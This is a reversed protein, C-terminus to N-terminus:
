RNSSRPGAAIALLFRLDDRLATRNQGLRGRRLRQHRANSRAGRVACIMTNSTNAAVTDSVML